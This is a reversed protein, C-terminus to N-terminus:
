KNLASHVNSILIEVESKYEDESLKDQNPWTLAFTNALSPSYSYIDEKSVNYWIPLVIKENMILERTFISNFETKGWGPNNLFEPTLILICKKAEKIGQEISERLHDGIKLSFEDYWVYCLRSNLGNALPRAIKEKNRSDHSIFALPKQLNTIKNLYTQSRFTAYIDKEICLKEIGNLEEQTLQNETYLFIRNSIFPRYIGLHIDGQFGSLIDFGEAQKKVYDLQNIIAKCGLFTYDTKPIYFIHIRTAFNSSIMTRQTIVLKNDSNKISNTQSSPVTLELQTHIPVCLDIGDNQFYEHITPM